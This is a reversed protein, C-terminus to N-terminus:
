EGQAKKIPERKVMEYVPSGNEDFVGGAAPHKTGISVVGDDELEKMRQEVVGPADRMKEEGAIAEAVGAWKEFKDTVALADRYKGDKIAGKQITLLDKIVRDANVGHKKLFESMLKEVKRKTAPRRFLKKAYKPGDVTYGALKALQDWDVAHGALISKTYFLVAYRGKSSRLFTELWNHGNLVYMCKMLQSAEFKLTSQSIRGFSFAMMRDYRGDRSSETHYILQGVYGDDTLAWEGPQTERWSEHYTIGAAEAEAQEYLVHEGKVRGRVRKITIM